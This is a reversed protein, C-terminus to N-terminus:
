KVEYVLKPVPETCTDLRLAYIRGTGNHAYWDSCDELERKAEELSSCYRTIHRGYENVTNEIYYIHPKNEYDICQQRNTFQTGDEAVYITQM